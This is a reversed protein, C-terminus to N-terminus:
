GSAGRQAFTQAIDPYGNRLLVEIVRKLGAGIADRHAAESALAIAQDFWALSAGVKGQTGCVTGLTSLVQVARTTQGADRYWRQAADFHRVAEDVQGREHQLAGLNYHLHAVTGQEGRQAASALLAELLAATEDLRGQARLVLALNSRAADLATPEAITERLRIGDRLAAEAEALAGGRWHLVGTEVLVNAEAARDQAARALVLAEALLARAEDPRGTERCTAALEWLARLREGGHGTATALALAERLPAEARAHDHAEGAVTGLNLLTTLEGQRHGIRRFVALIKEYAALAGKVDGQQSLASGINGMAHAVGLEDGLRERLAIAARAADIAQAYHGTRLHLAALNNQAQAQAMVDGLRTVLALEEGYCEAADDFRAMRELVMARNHLAIGRREDDGRAASDAAVRDFAELAAEWAGAGFDILGLTSQLGIREPGEGAPLRALAAEAVQRAAAIDGLSNLTNALANALAPRANTPTSAADLVKTLLERAAAPDGAVHSLMDAIVLAAREPGLAEAWERTHRVLAERAPVSPTLPTAAAPDAAPALWRGFAQQLWGPLEGRLLEGREGFLSVIRTVSPPVTVRADDRVLWSLGVATAAEAQLGLYHPNAELDAGSYGLFLWHYRQLCSRTASCIAPSLGRMRQALTDVLTDPEEVSGHLKLLQCPAAPSPEGALRDALAEFQAATIHVDLPVGRRAFARELLRDFNSTVIVRVVGAQALAALSEHVANPTEGDLCQLVKFYASGFHRSILEAQYEPPFSGATRRANLLAAWAQAQAAGCYREILAALSAVIQENLAWWSPLSSPPVMSVGAGCFVVLGHEATHILRSPM